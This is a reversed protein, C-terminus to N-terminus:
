LELPMNVSTGEQDDEFNELYWSLSHYSLDYAGDNPSLLDFIYM